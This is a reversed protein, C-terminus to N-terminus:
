IADQAKLREYAIQSALLFAFSVQFFDVPTFCIGIVAVRCAEIALGIGVGGIALSLILVSVIAAVGDALHLKLLLAEIPKPSLLGAGLSLIWTVATTVNPDLTM